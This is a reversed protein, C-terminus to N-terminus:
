GGAVLQRALAVLRDPGYADYADLATALDDISVVSAGRGDHHQATDLLVRALGRAEDATFHAWHAGEIVISRNERGDAFQEGWIGVEVPGAFHAEAGATHASFLRFWGEGDPGHGGDIWKGVKQADAPVPLAVPPPPSGALWQGSWVAGDPAPINVTNTATVATM